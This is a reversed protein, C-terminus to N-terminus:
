PIGMRSRLQLTLHTGPGWCTPRVRAPRDRHSPASFHLAPSLAGETLLQKEKRAPRAAARGGEAGRLSGTPHPLAVPRGLGALALSAPLAGAPFPRPGRASSRVGAFHLEQGRRRLNRNLVKVRQGKSPLSNPFKLFYNEM